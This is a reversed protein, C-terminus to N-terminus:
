LTFKFMQNLLNKNVLILWLSSWECHPSTIIKLHIIFFQKSYNSKCSETKYIIKDELNFHGLSCIAYFGLDDSKWQRDGQKHKVLCKNM